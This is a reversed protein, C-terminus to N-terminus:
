KPRAKLVEYKAERQRFHKQKYQDNHRKISIFHSQCCFLFTDWSIKKKFDSTMNRKKIKIYKVHQPFSLLKELSHHATKKEMSMKEDM